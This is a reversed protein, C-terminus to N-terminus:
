DNDRDAPLLIASVSLAVLAAADFWALPVGLVFSVGVSGTLFGSLCVIISKHSRNM